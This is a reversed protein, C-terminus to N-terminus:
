ELPRLPWTTGGGATLAGYCVEMALPFIQLGNSTDGFRVQSGKGLVPREMLESTGYVDEM